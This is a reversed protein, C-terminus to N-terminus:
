YIKATQCLQWWVSEFKWCFCYLDLIEILASMHIIEPLSWHFLFVVLVFCNLLYLLPNFPSLCLLWGSIKGMCHKHEMFFNRTESNIRSFGHCYYFEKQKDSCTSYYLRTKKYCIKENHKSRFYVIKVRGHYYDDKMTEHPPNLIILLYSLYKNRILLPPWLVLLINLPLLYPLHSWHFM